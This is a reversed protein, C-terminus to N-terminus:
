DDIMDGFADDISRGGKGAANESSNTGYKENGGEPKPGATDATNSGVFKKFITKVETAPVAPYVDSMKKIKSVIEQRAKPDAALKSPKIKAKFSIQAWGKANGKEGPKAYSVHVDYAKDPNTLVQLVKKADQEQPDVDCEAMRDADLCEKLLETSQPGTIGWFKPGESEKGREVVPVFVRAKAQIKKFIEWDMKRESEPKDGGDKNKWSRLQECFDCIPCEEDFNMKPCLIQRVDGLEYHFHLTVFIDDGHPYPLLRIDHEDKPKWIDNAKGGGRRNLQELRSKLEAITPM